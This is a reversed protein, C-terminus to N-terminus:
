YAILEIGAKRAESLVDMTTKAKLTALILKVPKSTEDKLYEKIRLLKGIDEISPRTKVEVIYITKDTEIYLDVEYSNILHMRKIYVLKEGRLRIEDLLDDRIFRSLTAETLAGIDSGLSGLMRTHQELIRTHKELMETHQELIKSHQELMKSHQELIESHKRLEEWIRRIEAEIEDFKRDHEELKMRHKRLEELIENFKRDHEELKKLIELLGIKAAVALRFEEDEELMKLFSKKDFIAGGM